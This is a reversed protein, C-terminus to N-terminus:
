VVLACEQLDCASYTDSMWLFRLAIYMGASGICTNAIIAVTPVVVHRSPPAPIEKTGDANQIHLAVPHFHDFLVHGLSLISSNVTM